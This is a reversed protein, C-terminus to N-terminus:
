IANTHRLPPIQHANEHDHMAYADTHHRVIINQTSAKTALIIDSNHLKKPAHMKHMM